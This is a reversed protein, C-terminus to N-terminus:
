EKAVGSYSDNYYSVSNGAAIGAVHTGHDCGTTSGCDEGAAVGYDSEAANPCLTSINLNQDNTNFCAGDIVKGSLMEHGADVGSDIIVIKTSSGTITFGEWTDDAKVISISKSLFAKSARDIYIREILPSRYLYKLAEEDVTLALLPSLKMRKVTSANLEKIDELFTDHMQSISQRQANKQADNGLKGEQTYEMNYKVIVRVYGRKKVQDLLQHKNTTDPFSNARVQEFYSHTSASADAMAYTSIAFLVSILLFTIFTKM